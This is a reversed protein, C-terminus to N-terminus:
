SPEARRAGKSTPPPSRCWERPCRPPATFQWVVVEYPDTASCVAANPSPRCGLTALRRTQMSASLRRIEGEGAAFRIVSGDDARGERLELLAVNSADAKTPVTPLALWATSGAEAVLAGRIPKSAAMPSARTRLPDQRGRPDLVAVYGGRTAAALLGDPSHFALSYTEDGIQASRAMACPEAYAAEQPNVDVPSYDLGMETGIALQRRGCAEFFALSYM